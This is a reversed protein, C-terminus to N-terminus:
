LYYTDKRRKKGARKTKLRQEAIFVMDDIGLESEPVCEFEGHRRGGGGGVALGSKSKAAAGGAAASSAVNSGENTAAFPIIEPKVPAGCFTPHALIVPEWYRNLADLFSMAPGGNSKIQAEKWADEYRQLRNMELGAYIEDDYIGQSDLPDEL